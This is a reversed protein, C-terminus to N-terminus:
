TRRKLWYYLGYGLLTSVLLFNLWFLWSVSALGVPVITQGCNARILRRFEAMESAEFPIRRTGGTTSDLIVTGTPWEPLWEVGVGPM